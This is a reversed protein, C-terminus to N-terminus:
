IECDEPMMREVKLEKFAKPYAANKDVTIVRPTSTHVAALAKAFFRKAAQSDRTPSLLFELTNGQSDVARYLYMWVTKVKVYTEDVRWSDNTTNLHPRCRKELEPAYSQVWRYITTHDVSLGRERMMEELDRYSLSYRIYWRVCLLIIEAEFHRWKFPNQQDM